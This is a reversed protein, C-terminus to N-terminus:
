AYTEGTDHVTGLDDIATRAVVVREAGHEGEIRLPRAFFDFVIHIPKDDTRESFARLHAISKRLGPELAADSEPPPLDSADVVP